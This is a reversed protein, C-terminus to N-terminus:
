PGPCVDCHEAGVASTAEDTNGYAGMNVRCGNPAPEGSCENTPKGTDICPSEAQLHFDGNDPDVFLPDESICTGAM